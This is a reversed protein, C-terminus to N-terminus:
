MYLVPTSLATGARHINDHRTCYIRMCGEIGDLIIYIKDCVLLNDFPFQGQRWKATVYSPFNNVVGSRKKKTEKNPLSNGASRPAEKHSTVDRRRKHLQATCVRCSYNSKNVGFCEAIRLYFLEM